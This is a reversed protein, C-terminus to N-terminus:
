DRELELRYREVRRAVERRRSLDRKHQASARDVLHLAQGRVRM